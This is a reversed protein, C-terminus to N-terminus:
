FVMDVKYPLSSNILDEEVQSKILRQQPSPAEKHTILLLDIDSYKKYNGKARSGFLYIKINAEKFIKVAKEHIIMLEQHNLGSKFLKM